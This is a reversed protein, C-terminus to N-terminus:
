GPLRHVFLSGDLGRLCDDFSHIKNENLEKIIELRKITNQINKEFIKTISNNLSIISITVISETSKLIDIDRLVLESKTLIHCSFKHKKITKLIDRTLKYKEETKQYPDHVSGIIIRGHPLKKLEKNLIEFINTKVYITSDYSSYCYTCAFECNQYPDVTYNGLFLNDKKTIKNLITNVHIQKYLM